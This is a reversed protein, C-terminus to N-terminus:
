FPEKHKKTIRCELFTVIQKVAELSLSHFTVGWRKKAWGEIYDNEASETVMQAEFEDLSALSRGYRREAVKQRLGTPLRLQKLLQRVKYRARLLEQHEGDAHLQAGLDSPQAWTRFVALVRTYDANTLLKISQPANAERHLEMRAEREQEKTPKGPLRGHRQLAAKAMGWTRWYLAVQKASNAKRRAAPQYSM